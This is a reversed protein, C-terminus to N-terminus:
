GERRVSRTTQSTDGGMLAIDRSAMYECASIGFGPEGAGFDVRAKARQESNMKKYVSNGWINGHGTHLFVCDGPQPEAIGQKKIIAKVDDATVIGIEGAEEPYASSRCRPLRSRGVRHWPM